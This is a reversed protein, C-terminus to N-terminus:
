KKIITISESNGSAFVKVYYTGTNYNAMYVKSTNNGSPANLVLKGNIDYIEIKEIIDKAIITLVDTTPNPYYEFDIEANDRLGAVADVTITGQMMAHVNCKYTTVGPEAFTHSFTQGTGTLLGSDFTDAGGANSTVSHQANNTWTWTVTDGEEITPSAEATTVGMFWNIHHTTQASLGLSVFLMGFLLNRKMAIIKM